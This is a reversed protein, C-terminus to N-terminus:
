YPLGVRKSTTVLLFCSVPGTRLMIINTQKGIVSGRMYAYQLMQWVIQVLPSGVLSEELIM